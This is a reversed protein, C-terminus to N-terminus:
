LTETGGDPLLESQHHCSLYFAPSERCVSWRLPHTFRSTVGLQAWQVPWHLLPCQRPQPTLALDHRPVLILSPPVFASVCLHCDM